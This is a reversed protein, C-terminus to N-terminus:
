AEYQEEKLLTSLCNPIAIMVLLVTTNHNYSKFDPLIFTVVNKLRRIFGPDKILNYVEKVLRDYSSKIKNWEWMIPSPLPDHNFLAKMAVEINRETLSRVFLTFTDSLFDQNNLQQHEKKIEQSMKQSFTPNECPPINKLLSLSMEQQTPQTTQGMSIQSPPSSDELMLQDPNTVAAKTSPQSQSKQKPNSKKKQTPTKKKFQTQTTM